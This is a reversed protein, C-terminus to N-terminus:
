VAIVRPLALSEAAARRQGYSLDTKGVVFGDLRRERQCSTCRLVAMQGEWRVVDIRESGCQACFLVSVNMADVGERM